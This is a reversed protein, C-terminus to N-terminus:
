VGIAQIVNENMRDYSDWLDSGPNINYTTYGFAKKILEIIEVSTYGTRRKIWEDTVSVMNHAAVNRVNEEVHRLAGVCRTIESNQILNEILRVLHISQVWSGRFNGNFADDLIAGFKEARLKEMDWDIRNDRQITFDELKFGAQRRLIDAFLDVFVPSLARAFDAYQARRATAQLELTYEYIERKGGHAGIPRYITAEEPNKLKKVLIDVKVFDLAQRADALRLKGLYAETQDERLTEALTLAAYYNYTSVYKRIAEEYKLKKLSPLEVDETRDYDKDEPTKDNDPNEAWRIEPYFGNLDHLQQNMSKAPTSVQVCTCRIDQMTALVLLASKMAPTGSSINLLLEDDNDMEGTIEKLIDNFEEYFFEFYQVDVLNERKYQFIEFPQGLKKSLEDLCYCYRNDLEQRELIEKSMYMYIIDPRRHRAIHILAGDHYNWESMPDTGGVPSFLITKRM